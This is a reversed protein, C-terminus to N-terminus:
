FINKLAEPKGLFQASLKSLVWAGEAEVYVCKRGGDIEKVSHSM